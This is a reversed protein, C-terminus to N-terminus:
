KGGIQHDDVLGPSEQRAFKLEFRGSTAPINLRLLEGHEFPYVNVGVDSPDLLEDGDASDGDSPRDANILTAPVSSLGPM